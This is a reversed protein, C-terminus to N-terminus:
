GNREEPYIDYLRKRWHIAYKSNGRREWYAIKGYLEEKTYLENRAKVWAEKIQHRAVWIVFVFGACGLSLIILGTILLGQLLANM